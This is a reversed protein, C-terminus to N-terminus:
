SIFHNPFFFLSLSHYESLIFLIIDNYYLLIFSKNNTTYQFFFTQFTKIYFFIVIHYLKILYFLTYLLLTDKTLFFNIFYHQKQPILMSILRFSLLIPDITVLIKKKQRSCRKIPMTKPFQEDM